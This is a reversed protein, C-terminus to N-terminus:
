RRWATTSCACTASARSRGVHDRLTGRAPHRAPVHREREPQAYVVYGAVTPDASPEGPSRSRARSSATPASARRRRRPARGDHRVAVAGVQAGLHGRAISRRARPLLLTNGDGLDGASERAHRKPALDAGRDVFATEFRDWRGRRHARVPGDARLRASSRTAPWTAACCRTGACRSRACSARWRACGRPARRHARAAGRALLPRSAAGRRQAAHRARARRRARRACGLRAPRAACAARARPADRARREASARRCRRESAPARPERAAARRAGRLRAGGRQRARDAARAAVADLASQLDEQQYHAPRVRDAGAVEPQLEARLGALHRRARAHKPTPTRPRPTRASRRTLTTRAARGRARETTPGRRPDRRRSARSRARSAAAAARQAPARRRRPEERASASSTPRPLRAGDRQEPRARAGLEFAQEARRTSRRLQLRAPRARPAREIQGRGARGRAPARRRTARPDFPISRACRARASDGAGALDGRTSATACRRRKAERKARWRRALEQVHALTARDDPELKLALRYNLM